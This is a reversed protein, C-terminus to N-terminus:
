YNSASQTLYELVVGFEEKRLREQLLERWEEPRDCSPPLDWYDTCCIETRICDKPVFGANFWCRLRIPEDPGNVIVAMPSPWNENFVFTSSEMGMKKCIPHLKEHSLDSEDENDEMPIYLPPSAIQNGDGGCIKDSTWEAMTKYASVVKDVYHLKEDRSLGPWEQALNKGWSEQLVILYGFDSETHYLVDPTLFGVDGKSKVYEINAHERM